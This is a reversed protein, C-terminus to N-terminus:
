SRLPGRKDPTPNRHGDDVELIKRALTHLGNVLDSGDCRVYVYCGAAATLTWTWTLHVQYGGEERRVKLYGHDFMSVTSFIEGLQGSQYGPQGHEGAGQRIKYSGAAPLDPNVNRVHRPQGPEWNRAM